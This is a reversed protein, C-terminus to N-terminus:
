RADGPALLFLGTRDAEFRLAALAAEDRPSHLIAIGALGSARARRMLEAPDYGLEGAIDTMALVGSRRRLFRMGWPKLRGAREAASLAGGPGETALVYNRSVVVAAQSWVPELAALVSAGLRADSLQAASPARRACPKLGAIGDSNDPPRVEPQGNAAEIGVVFLGAEDALEIALRREAFLTQGSAVAVGALGAAAARRMTEPGIAPLDIRREQDPKPMKVLVSRRAGSAALPHRKLAAPSTMRRLMADTGDAGEIAILGGDYGVAAQAADFPGFVALAETCRRIAERDSTDPSHRGLVGVPAILEPAAEHAGVVKLGHREFFGVVLRLIADDGGRLLPLLAPLSTWFGLDPRISSLNPRRVRGIIVIERCGNLRFARIMAGIGGFNVWTHPFSEIGTEAEGELGVIHVGRGRATVAAAIESPVGSGGALIGLPAAEAAARPRTGARDM